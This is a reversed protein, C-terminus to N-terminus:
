AGKEWEAKVKRVKNEATKLYSELEKTITMGREYLTMAEDIDVDGAQLKDLVQDLETSLAKYDINKDAM